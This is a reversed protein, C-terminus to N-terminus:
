HEGTNQIKGQASTEGELGREAALPLNGKDCGVAPVQLDQRAEEAQWDEALLINHRRDRFSLVNRLRHCPGPSKPWRSHISRHNYTYV